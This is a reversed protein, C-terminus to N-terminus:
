EKRRREARGVLKGTKITALLIQLGAPILVLAISFDLLTVGSSSIQINDLISFCNAIGNLIMSFFASIFSSIDIIMLFM